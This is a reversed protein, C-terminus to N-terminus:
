RRRHPSRCGETLDVFTRVGADLLAQVKGRAEADDKSGPYTGALLAPAVWHSTAIPPKM